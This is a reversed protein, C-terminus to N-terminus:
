RYVEMSGIVGWRFLYTLIDSGEPEAEPGGDTEGQSKWLETREAIILYTEVRLVSCLAELSM